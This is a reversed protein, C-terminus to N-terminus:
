DIEGSGAARILHANVFFRSGSSKAGRSSGFISLLRAYTPKEVTRRLVQQGDMARSLSSGYDLFGSSRTFAFPGSKSARTGFLCQNRVGCGKATGASSLM